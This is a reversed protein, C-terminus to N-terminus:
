MVKASIKGFYAVSRKRSRLQGGDDEIRIVRFISFEIGNVRFIGGLGSRRSGVLACVASGSDSPYAIVGTTFGGAPSALILRDEHFPGVGVDLLEVNSPVARSSRRTPKSLM